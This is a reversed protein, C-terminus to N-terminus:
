RDRRIGNDDFQAANYITPTGNRLQDLTTTVAEDRIRLKWNDKELTAVKARLEVVEELLEGHVREVQSRV